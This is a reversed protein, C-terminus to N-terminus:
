SSAVNVTCSESGGSPVTVTVSSAIVSEADSGSCNFTIDANAEPGSIALTHQGPTLTTDDQSSGNSVEAFPDGDLTVPYPGIHQADMTATLDLEAYPNNYTNVFTCVYADGPDVEFPGYSQGSAVVGVVVGGEECSVQSTYDGPDSVSGDQEAVTYGEGTSGVGFTQDFGDGGSGINNSDIYFNWTDTSPAQQSSDPSTVVQKVIEITAPLGSNTFQCVVNAGPEIDVTASTGDNGSTVDTGSGDTCSLVSSYYALNAGAGASETLTYSGATVTQVQSDYGDNGDGSFVSGGSNSLDFHFLGSDNAPQALVSKLIDITGTQPAIATNLYNCVIKDGQLIGVLGLSYTSDTSDYNPSTGFNVASGNDTCTVSPTYNSFNANSGASEVINLYGTQITMAGSDYPSLADGILSYGSSSYLGFNWKSGDAPSVTKTIELTALETNTFTCTDTEGAVLNVAIATGSQPSGDTCSLGTLAWGTTPSETVSYTGPDATYTHPTDTAALSFNGISSTFGFSTPDGPPDTVKDIILHAQKVNTFTCTVTEGATLTVSATMSGLDQLEGDSCSLGLLDWGATALEKVSYNGAPVIFDNSIGDSLPFSQGGLGADPQFTFSAPDGSPETVKKIILHAKQVLTNTYTCVVQDGPSILNIIGIYYSPTAGGLMTPGDNPSLTQGNDTCAVSPTYNAFDTGAGATENILISGPQIVLPGSDFPTTKDSLTYAPSGCNDCVSFTWKSGDGDNPLTHKIIELTAQKTNTYNCVIKEGAVVSNFVLHYIPTLGSFFIPPSDPIVTTGNVTCTVSPTYNNFDTATGATEDIQLSGIAVPVAGSDFGSSKNLYSSTPTANATGVAFSWKSGDKPVVTKTIELTPAAQKTNTFVCVVGHAVVATPLLGTTTGSGSAITTSGDKCVFASSYNALSTSSGATESASNQSGPPIARAHTTGGNGVNFAYTAADIKLNFKGHDSSPVLVKKVELTSCAGAYGGHALYFPAQAESVTMTQAYPYDDSVHCLTLPIGRNTFTCVVHHGTVAQPLTGTSTGSGSAITASGDKCTYSSSYNSLSSSIGAVESATHQSGPTVVRAGTTGGNSVNWADTTADILLNFRGPDSAPSLVKKVELTSCAGLYDGHNFYSQESSSSISLSQSWPAGSLIHCIAAKGGGNGSNGGGNEGGGGKGGGGGGASAGAAAILLALASLVVLIVHPRLHPRQM